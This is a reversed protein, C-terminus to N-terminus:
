PVLAFLELGRRGRIPHEGLSELATGEALRERTTASVLVARDLAKTMGEVRSATNVTDGIHTYELRRPSGINGAVLPGTHIGIGIALAPAGRATRTANLGGLRRLMGRACRVAREAQDREALPPGFVAVIGDGIFKDLIGENEFVEDVMEAFYENLLSVVDEPELEEALTTFGRIDAFLVTSEQKVGGLALATPDRTLQAVVPEPLFRAFADREKVRHIIRHLKRAAYGLIAGLTVVQVLNVGMSVMGTDRLHIRFLVITATVACLTSFATVRWSFRLANSGLLLLLAAVMDHLQQTAMAPANELLFVHTRDAIIALVGIDLASGVYPIMPHYVRRLWTLGVVAAAVGYFLGAAVGAYFTGRVANAILIGSCITIWVVARVANILRESRWAEELLLEDAGTASSAMACPYRMCSGGLLRVAHRGAVVVLRPRAPRSM